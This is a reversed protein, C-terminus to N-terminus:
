CDSNLEFAYLQSFVEIGIMFGLEFHNLLELKFNSISALVVKSFLIKELKARCQKFFRIVLKKLRFNIFKIGNSFLSLPSCNKLVSMELIRDM